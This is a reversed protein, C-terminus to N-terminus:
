RSLKGEKELREVERHVWSNLHLDETYHDYNEYFRQEAASDMKEGADLASIAQQIYNKTNDVDVQNVKTTLTDIKENTPKLAEDIIKRVRKLTFNVIVGGSALLSAVFVLVSQIDGLNIQEM